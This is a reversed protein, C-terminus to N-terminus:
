GTALPGPDARLNTARLRRSLHLFLDKYFRGAFTANEAMLVEIATRPIILVETDGDAILTASAGRGDVFSMEGVVDGPGLPGVFESLHGGAFVHTVRLMGQAVVMLNEVRGGQNIVTDGSGFSHGVAVQMLADREEDTLNRFSQELAM